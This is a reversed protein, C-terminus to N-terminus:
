DASGNDPSNRRLKVMLVEGSPLDRKRNVKARGLPPLALMEGSALANGLMQLTAEVVPKVDRKKAGTMAAVREVLDKKRM